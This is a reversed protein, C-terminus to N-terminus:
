MLNNEKLVEILTEGIKDSIPAVKVGLKELEIIKDKASGSKGNVVAGAHGMRKGEPATTGGVFGVIPKKM